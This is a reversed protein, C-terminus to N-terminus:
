GGSGGSGGEESGGGQAATENERRGSGGEGGGGNRGEAGLLLLDALSFEPAAADGKIFTPLVAPPAPPQPPPAPPPADAASHSTRAPRDPGGEGPSVGPDSAGTETSASPHFSSLRLSNKQSLSDNDYRPTQSGAAQLPHLHCLASQSQGPIPPHRDGGAEAAGAPPRATPETRETLAAPGKALQQPAEPAAAAAAAATAPTASEGREAEM